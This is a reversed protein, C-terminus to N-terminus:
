CPRCRINTVAECWYLLVRVIKGPKARGEAKRKGALALQYCLYGDQDVARVKAVLPAPFLLTNLHACLTGRDGKAFQHDEFYNSLVTLVSDFESKSFGFIAM